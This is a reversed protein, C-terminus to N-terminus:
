TEFPDDKVSVNKSNIKMYPMVLYKKVQNKKDLLDKIVAANHAQYEREGAKREELLAKLENEDFAQKNKISEYKDENLYGMRRLDERLYKLTINKQLTTYHILGVEYGTLFEELFSTYNKNYKLFTLIRNEIQTGKLNEIEFLFQFLSKLCNEPDFILDEFRLIFVPIPCDLWFSYFDHIKEAYTAVLSSFLAENSKITAMELITKTEKVKQSFKQWMMDWPSRILLICKHAEFEQGKVEPYNTKKIWTTSDIVGEGKYIRIKM